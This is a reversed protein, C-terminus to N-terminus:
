MSNQNRQNPGKNHKEGKSQIIVRLSPFLDSITIVVKLPAPTPNPVGNPNRWKKM